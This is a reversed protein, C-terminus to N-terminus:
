GHLVIMSPPPAPVTFSPLVNLLCLVLERSFSTLVSKSVAFKNWSQLREGGKGGAGRRIGSM